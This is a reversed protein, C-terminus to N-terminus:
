RWACAPAAPDGGDVGGGGSEAQSGHGVGVRQQEQTGGADGVLRVMVVMLAGMVALLHTPLRGQLAPSYRSLPQAPSVVPRVVWLHEVWYNMGWHLSCRMMPITMTPPRISETMPMTLPAATAM